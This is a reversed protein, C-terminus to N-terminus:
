MHSLPKIGLITFCNSMVLMVVKLLYIRAFLFKLLQERPQTLIQVKSYYSSIAFSLNQLFNIISHIRCNDDKNNLSRLINLLLSPWVLVHDYILRWEEQYTLCSVDIEQLEPLKPYIGNSSKEEFLDLIIKLRVYNYFVFVAGRDQDCHETSKVPKSIKSKLLDFLVVADCLHELEESGLSSNTEEGKILLAEKRSKKYDDPSINCNSVPAISILSFDENKLLNRTAKLLRNSLHLHKFINENESNRTVTAGGSMLVQSLIRETLQVRLETLTSPSENNTETTLLFTKGLYLSSKGYETGNQLVHNFCEFFTTTRDLYIYMYHENPIHVNQVKLSWSRSENILKSAKMNHLLTYHSCHFYITPNFFLVANSVFM